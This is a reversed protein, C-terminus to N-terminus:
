VHVKWEVYYTQKNGDTRWVEQVLEIGVQPFSPHVAKILKQSDFKPKGTTGYSVLFSGVDMSKLGLYIQHKLVLVAEEM